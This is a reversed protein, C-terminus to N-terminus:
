RYLYLLYEQKRELIEKRKKQEEQRKNEIDIIGQKARGHEPLLKIVEQWLDYAKDLDGSNYFSEARALM